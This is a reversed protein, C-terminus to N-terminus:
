FGIDTQMSKDTPEVVLRVWGALHISGCFKGTTRYVLNISTQPAAYVDRVAVKLITDRSKNRSV